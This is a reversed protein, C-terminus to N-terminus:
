KKDFFKFQIFLFPSILYLVLYMFLLIVRGLPKELVLDVIHDLEKLTYSFAWTCIGLYITVLISLFSEFISGIWAVHLFIITFFFLFSAIIFGMRSFELKKSQNNRKNDEENEENKTDFYKLYFYIFPAVFYAVVSMGKFITQGLREVESDFRDLEKVIYSFSWTCAGLYIIVLISLFSEFPNGLWYGHLLVFSLFFFFCGLIFGLVSFEFKKKSM